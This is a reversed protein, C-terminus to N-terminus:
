EKYVVLGDRTIAIKFGYKDNHILLYRKLLNFETRAQKSRFADVTQTIIPIQALTLTPVFRISAIINANPNNM